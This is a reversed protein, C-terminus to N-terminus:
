DLAPDDPHRSPDVVADEEEAARALEAEAEQEILQKRHERLAAEGAEIQEKLDRRKTANCELRVLTDLLKVVETLRQHIAAQSNIFAQEFSTTDEEEPATVTGDEAIPSM